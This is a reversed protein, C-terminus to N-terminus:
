RDTQLANALQDVTARQWSLYDHGEPLTETVTVLPVGAKRAADQVQKAAPSETQPNVLLAQVQRGTLLDLVAAVDVPAPDDGHEAAAAFAAPTRDTVGARALLYYAVPETSVVSSGPHASGIATETAIVGDAQKGFAQANTRYADANTPDDAALKDAIRTAVAKATALDYFVHENAPRGSPDPAVLSYADVTAANQHGALVDDVWHDYGGGNYVVLTADSIAAADSPSAEYSHPDDTASKLISTVTAHDGAVAQAVSGWVDTSAVVTIGQDHQPTRSCAVAFVLVLAAGVVAIWRLRRTGVSAGEVEGSICIFVTEM